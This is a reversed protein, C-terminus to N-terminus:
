LEDIEAISVMAPAVLYGFEKYFHINESSINGNKIYADEKIM